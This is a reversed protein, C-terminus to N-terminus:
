SGIRTRLWVFTLSPVTQCARSMASHSGSKSRRKRVEAWDVPPTRDSLLEEIGTLIIQRQHDILVEEDDTYLQRCAWGGGTCCLADSL